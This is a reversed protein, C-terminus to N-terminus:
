AAQSYTGVLSGQYHEVPFYCMVVGDALNPSRTNDPKKDVIQKLSGNPSITPQALEKELQRLLPINSDISIMEDPDHIVGQVINQYTRWFRMRLSWWAQAKFNGFFDKNRASETDGEIIHDYPNVVSAGANWPVFNILNPDVENAEVLRNWEAKVGSGVGISDYQVLIGRHHKLGDATRRTTVGTDREGWEVASRLVMGQRAVLANRDGGGDAVDLAAMWDSSLREDPLGIRKCGADDIWKFKLHADIAAKIWAADIITNEIAGSYDRDVEQKFKYLLGESEWKARRQDYWAQTKAPHDRWDVVFVRTKGPHQTWDNAPTWDIGEERRRHFVNGLGNVSSIDVQVNTNDGLSAEILDPREYHASEDKFYITKRGGRGINDGAEGIVVAGNAPNILRMFTMHEKQVFGSPLFEKPLRRIVLRLKEFISDPDGLKDVLAEKRSGWGVASEDCFLWKWVSYGVCLWTLGVDRAKEVLGSEQDRELETLFTIFEDQRKFFIFPMWKMAGVVRPNYTDMWHMIFEGAHEPESYYALAGALMNPDSRIRQLQKVRWAYVAKYDPPWHAHDLPEPRWAPADGPEYPRAIWDFLDTSQM